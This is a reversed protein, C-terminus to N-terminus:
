FLHRDVLVFGIIPVAEHAVASNGHDLADV